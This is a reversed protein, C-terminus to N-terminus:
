QLLVLKWHCIYACVNFFVELSVSILIIIHMKIDVLQVHIYYINAFQISCYCVMPVWNSVSTHVYSACKYNYYRYLTCCSCIRRKVFLLWSVCSFFIHIQTCLKAGLNDIFPLFFIRIIYLYLKTKLRELLRAYIRQRLSTFRFWVVLIQLIVISLNAAPHINAIYKIKIVSLGHM